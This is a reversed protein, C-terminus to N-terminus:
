FSFTMEIEVPNELSGVYFYEAVSFYGMYYNVFVNEYFFFFCGYNEVSTNPVYTLVYYEQFYATFISTYYYTSYVFPETFVMMIGETFTTPKISSTFTIVVTTVPITITNTTLEVFGSYDGVTVSYTNGNVALTVMTHVTTGTSHYIMSGAFYTKTDLSTYPTVKITTSDVITYEYLITKQTEISYTSNLIFQYTTIYSYFTREFYYTVVPCSFTFRNGLYFYMTVYYTKTGSTYTEANVVAKPERESFNGTTTGNTVYYTTVTSSISQILYYPTYSTLSEPITSGIVVIHTLRTITVIRYLSEAVYNGFYGGGTNYYAYAIKTTKNGNVINTAVYDKGPYTWETSVTYVTNSVLTYTSGGVVTTTAALVPTFSIAAFVVALFALIGRM